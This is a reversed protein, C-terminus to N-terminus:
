KKKIGKKGQKIAEKEIKRKNEKKWKGKEYNEKTRAEQSKSM